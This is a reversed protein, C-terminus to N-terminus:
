YDDKKTNYRIYQTKSSIMKGNQEEFELIIGGIDPNLGKKGMYSPTQAQFCPLQIAYIGIYDPVVCSCHYHGVALLSPTANDRNEVQAQALKQLKYSRAYPVSGDAHQLCINVGHIIFNALYSSKYILDPRQVSIDYCIDSGYRKYFSEDHNGGIFYTTVGDIKPYNNIIYTAQNKEGMEFIEFEHGPYIKYGDSIDGAHLITTIGQEACTGYFRWLSELQQYKSCLHTDSVIGIKYTNIDDIPSIDLNFTYGRQLPKKTVFLGSNQVTQIASSLEKPSCYKTLQTQAADEMKSKKDEYIRIWTPHTTGMFAACKRFSGLENYLDEMEQISWQRLPKMVKKDKM